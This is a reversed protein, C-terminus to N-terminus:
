PGSLKWKENGCASAHNASKDLIIRIIGTRKLAARTARQEQDTQVGAIPTQRRQVHAPIFGLWHHGKANLESDPSWRL